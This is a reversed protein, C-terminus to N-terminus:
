FDLGPGGEREYLWVLLGVLLILVTVLLFLRGSGRQEGQGLGSDQPTAIGLETMRRKMANKSQYHSTGHLQQHLEIAAVYNRSQILSDFEQSRDHGQVPSGSQRRAAERPKRLPYGQALADIAEKADNLSTQYRDKYIRIAEIKNGNAVMRRIESDTNDM